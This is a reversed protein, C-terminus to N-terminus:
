IIDHSVEAWGVSGVGCILFILRIGTNSMPPFFFVNYVEERFGLHLARSSAQKALRLTRNAQNKAVAEAIRIEM